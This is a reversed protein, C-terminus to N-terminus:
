TKPINLKWTLGFKDKVIGYWGTFTSESFPIVVQGQKALLGFTVQGQEVSSPNLLIAFGEFQPGDAEDYGVDSAKFETGYISFTAHFILDENDPKVFSKDPCERFRMLYLIECGLVEQYFDLAAETQGLFSLTLVASM